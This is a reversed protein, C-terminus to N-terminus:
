WRDKQSVIIREINYHAKWFKWWPVDNRVKEEIYTVEIEGNICISNRFKLGFAPCSGFSYYAGNCFKCSRTTATKM